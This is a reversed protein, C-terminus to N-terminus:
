KKGLLLKFFERRTMTNPKQTQTEKNLYDVESQTLGSESYTSLYGESTDNFMEVHYSSGNIHDYKSVEYHKAQKAQNVLFEMQLKYNDKNTNM